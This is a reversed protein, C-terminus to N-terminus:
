QSHLDNLFAVALLNSLKTLTIKLVVAFVKALVKSSRRLIARINIAQAIFCIVRAEYLWIKSFVFSDL